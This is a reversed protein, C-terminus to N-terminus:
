PQSKFGPGVAGSDLVSVVRSGLWGVPVSSMPIVRQTYAPCVARGRPSNVTGHIRVCAEISCASEICGAPSTAFTNTMSRQSDTQGDTRAGHRWPRRSRPPPRNGGGVVFFDTCAFFVPVSPLSASFASRRLPTAVRVLCRHTAPETGPVGEYVSTISEDQVRRLWYLAAPTNAQARRCKPLKM